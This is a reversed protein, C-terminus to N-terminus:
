RLLMVYIDYFAHTYVAVAFNRFYYLAAFFLGALFRYVFVGVSFPDGYPGVHHMASFLLASVVFALAVAGGRGFGLAKEGLVRLGSILLLRFVFEEHVGAGVSLVLKDFPGAPSFGAALYRSFPQMVFNILTGMTLAYIGSELVVPVFLRWDFSERRRLLGLMLVFGLTLGGVLLLYTKVDYRL